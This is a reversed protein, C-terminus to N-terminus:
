LRCRKPELFQAFNASALSRGVTLTLQRYVRTMDRDVGVSKVFRM